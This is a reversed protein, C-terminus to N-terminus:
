QPGPGKDDKWAAARRAEEAAKIGLFVGSPLDCFRCPCSHERAWLIAQYEPSYEAFPYLITRIPLEQTYAMVAVPPKVQDAGLDEVLETFDSPGEILM